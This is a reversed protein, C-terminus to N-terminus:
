LGTITVAEGGWKWGRFGTSVAGPLTTLNNMLRSLHPMSAKRRMITIAAASPAPASTPHAAVPLISPNLHGAEIEIAAAGTFRWEKEASCRGKRWITAM